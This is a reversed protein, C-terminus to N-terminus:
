GKKQASHLYSHYGDPQLFQETLQEPQAKTEQLCVIDFGSSKMWEFLGKNAAARIGNVNWSVLRTVM